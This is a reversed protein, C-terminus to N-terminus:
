NTAYNELDETITDDFWWADVKSIIKARSDEPVMAITTAREGFNNLSTGLIWVNNDVVLFRDHLDSQGRMVRCKVKSGNVIANYKEQALKLAKAQEKTISKSTLIRVSVDLSRQHFVYKYLEDAGFYPDCIIIKNNAHNQIAMLVDHAKQLNQEKLNKDGDFFIFKFEREAQEYSKTDKVIIQDIDSQAGIVSRTTSFKPIDEIHEKGEKDKSKMKVIMSNISMGLSISRIFHMNQTRYVIQGNDDVILVEVQEIDSDFPILVMRDGTSFDITKRELIIGNADSNIACCQYKTNGQKRYTVKGVLGGLTKCVKWDIKRFEPHYQIVYMNGIVNTYRTLDCHLFEQSLESMQKQLYENGKFIALIADSSGQLIHLSCGCDRKPLVMKLPRADGDNYVTFFTNISNPYLKFRNGSLMFIHDGDVVYNEAPNAVFENSITAIDSTYYINYPNKGSSTSARECITKEGDHPYDQMDNEVADIIGLLLYFNKAKENRLLITHRRVKKGILNDMDTNVNSGGYLHKDLGRIGTALKPLSEKNTNNKDAM